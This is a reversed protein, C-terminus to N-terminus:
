FKIKDEESDEELPIESTEKYYNKPKKIISYILALFFIISCALIIVQLIHDNEYGFYEKYYKLM